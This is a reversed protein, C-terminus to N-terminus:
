EPETTQGAGGPPDPLLSTVAEEEVLFVRVTLGLNAAVNEYFKYEEIGEAPSTLVAARVKRTQIEQLAALERPMYFLDTMSFGPSAERVDYLIGCGHEAALARAKTIIEEGLARSLKGRAMVRVFRRSEDLLVRYPELRRM